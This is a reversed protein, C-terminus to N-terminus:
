QVNGSAVAMLLALGLQVTRQLRLAPIWVKLPPSSWDAGSYPWAAPCQRRTVSLEATRSYGSCRPCSRSVPRSVGDSRGEAESSPTEAQVNPTM